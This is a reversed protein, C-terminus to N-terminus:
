CIFRRLLDSLAQESTGLLEPQGPVLLEAARAAHADGLEVLARAAFSAVQREDSAAVKTAPLVQRLRDLREGPQLAAHAQLRRPALSPLAVRLGVAPQM